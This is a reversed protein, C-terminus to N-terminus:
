DYYDPGNHYHSYEHGSYSSASTAGHREAEDRSGYYGPGHPKDERMPTDGGGVFLKLLGGVLILVIIWNIVNFDAEM